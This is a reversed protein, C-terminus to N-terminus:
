GSRALQAIWREVRSEADGGRLVASAAAAGDRASESRLLRMTADAIDNPSTSDARLWAGAHLAAIARVNLFQDLNAPLALYPV